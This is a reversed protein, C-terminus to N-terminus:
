IVPPVAEERTTPQPEQPTQAAQQSWPLVQYRTATGTGQKLVTVFELNPMKELIAKLDGIVVGPVRYREGNVELYKYKFEDPTGQKAVHEKLEANTSVKDLDAVNKTQQPTYAQAEEKFTAMRKGETEDKPHICDPDLLRGQQERMPERISCKHIEAEEKPLFVESDKM